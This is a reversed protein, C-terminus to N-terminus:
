AHAVVEGDVGDRAMTTLQGTLQEDSWGATQAQMLRVAAMEEDSLDYGHERLTPELNERAARRFDEDALAREVLSTLVDDRM